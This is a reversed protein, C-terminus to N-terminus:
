QQLRGHVLIHLCSSLFILSVWCGVKGVQTVIVMVQDDFDQVLLETKVGDILGSTQYTPVVPPLSSPTAVPAASLDYPLAVEDLAVAPRPPHVTSGSGGSPGGARGHEHDHEHDDEEPLIIGYGSRTKALFLPVPPIIGNFTLTGYVLLAFGTVQLLSQPWMLHEWGLLLSM